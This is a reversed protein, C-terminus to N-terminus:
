LKGLLRRAQDIPMEHGIYEFVANPRSGQKWTKLKSSRGPGASFKGPQHVLVWDKNKALTRVWSPHAPYSRVRFGDAKYAAAITDKLIPGLGFGQWDPHTVIRTFRKINKAKAHPFHLLAAFSALQDGVFLGYCQAASSLEASMYHFQRVIKWAERSIASITVDMKPRQQLLRRTFTMTAPELIWDPQLWEVVDYHCTAAVFQQNHKRIHKQVAWAGIKAVQRDVVSTFEDVVIPSPSSLLRRALDVRFREGNSLVAYPRIWSPITNFGVARCIESIQNMNLTSDFDDIVSKEAWKFKCPSGFVSNIITSKGAGSPGVILGVNWPEAEFPFEGSWSLSVQDSVPCDFLSQLQRVRASQSVETEVSINIILIDVGQM